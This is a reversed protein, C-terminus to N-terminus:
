GLLGSSLPHCVSVRLVVGHAKVSLFPTLGHNDFDHLGMDLCAFPIKLMLGRVFPSICEDGRNPVAVLDAISDSFGDSQLVACDNDPSVSVDNSVAQAVPSPEVVM